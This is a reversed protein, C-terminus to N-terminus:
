TRGETDVRPEAVAEPASAGARHARLMVSTVAELGDHWAEDVEDTWEEGLTDRLTAILTSTVAHYHSPFAGYGIHREGLEVLVQDVADPNRLNDIVTALADMLHQQQRRMSVHAFLPKVTPHRAFLREYFREAVEARRAAVVAFSAELLATKREPLSHIDLQGALANHSFNVRSLLTMGPSAVIGAAAGLSIENRELNLERLAHWSAGKALAAAGADGLRNHALDLRVLRGACASTAISAAAVPGLGNDELRLEEVNPLADFARGLGADDGLQNSSLGVRRLNKLYPAGVLASVGAVGLENGSLDLEQLSAAESVSALRQVGDVGLNNGAASLSTLLGRGSQVAQVFGAADIDTADVSLATLRVKPLAAALAAAGDAGLPNRALDLSELEPPAGGLLTAGAATIGNQAVRMTRLGTLHAAGLLAALGADGLRNDSVDLTKLRRSFPSSALMMAGQAGFDNSSLDLEELATFPSSHVLLEVGQTGLTNRALSLRRLRGVNPSLTLAAAGSPGIDNSALDLERLAGLARSGSVAGVGDSGIGNGALLLTQLGDLTASDALAAAGAAGIDNDTLDLVRLPLHSGALAEAGRPGLSNGALLLEGLRTFGTARALSDIGAATLKNRSLDLRALHRLRDSGAIADVAGNGLENNALDLRTITSMADTGALEEIDAESLGRSSLDLSRALPWLPHIDGSRVADWWNSPAARLHDPWDALLTEARALMQEQQRTQGSLYRCLAWWAGESPAACLAELLGLSGTVAAGPVLTHEIRALSEVVQAASRPRHERTTALLRSVLKDLAPHAALAPDVESPAPGADLRREHLLQLEGLAAADAPYPVRGTLMYFLTAGLQWLDVRPDLPADSGIQEPALFHPTGLVATTSRKTHPAISKAIGFDILKAQENPTGPETVLINEPKLDRHLVDNAHAVVLGSAIQKAIRVARDPALPTPGAAEEAGDALLTSLPTGNVLELLLYLASEDELTGVAYCRAINPHNVQELVLAENIFRERVDSHAAWETHLVKLARRLKGVVTEVLYVVGFGGSGLRGLIRYQGGVVTQGLRPDAPWASTPRTAGCRPCQNSTPDDLSTSCKHCFHTM